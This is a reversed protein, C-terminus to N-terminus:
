PIQRMGTHVLRCETHLYDLGLLLEWLGAKLLAETFRNTPNRRPLDRWSDWLPKQVLCCHQKGVPSQINFQDLATRVHRRGPHSPSAKRMLEYCHFEDTHTGDSTYVKLSVHNHSKIENSIHSATHGFSGSWTALWGHRLPRALDWSVWCRTDPPM